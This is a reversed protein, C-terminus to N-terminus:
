KIMSEQDRGFRDIVGDETEMELVVEEHEMIAKEVRKRINTMMERDRNYIRYQKRAEIKEEVCVAHKAAETEVVKQQKIVAEKLWDVRKQEAEISSAHFSRGIMGQYIADTEDNRQKIMNQEKQRAKELVQEQESEARSKIQLETQARDERRQRAKELRKLNHPNVRSAAEDM